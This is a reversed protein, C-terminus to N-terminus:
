KEDNDLKFDLSILSKAHLKNIILNYVTNIILTKKFLFVVLAILLYFGSVILFGLYNSNLEKGIYFAVGVNFFLLSTSLILVLLANSVLLSIIDAITDIASLKYLNISTETYNKVRKFLAEIHMVTNKDKM